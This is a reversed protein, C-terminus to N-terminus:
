RGNRTPYDPMVFNLKGAPQRWAGFRVETTGVSFPMDTVLPAIRIIEPIGDRCVRTTDVVYRRGLVKRAILRQRKERSDVKWSLEVPMPDPWDTQWSHQDEIIWDPRIESTLFVFEPCGDKLYRPEPSPPPLVATAAMTTPSSMMLLVVILHRWRTRHTM